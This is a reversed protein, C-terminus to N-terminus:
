DVKTNDCNSNTEADADNNEAVRRVFLRVREVSNAEDLATRRIEEQLEASDFRSAICCTRKLM